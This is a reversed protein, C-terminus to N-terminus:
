RNRSRVVSCVPADIDDGTGVLVHNGVVVPAPTSFYGQSLDAIGKHWREKGTQADLAVLYDDPTEMFLTQHWMGPRPQRHTHRRRRGSTTGCDSGDRADVAVRQGAHHLLAGMSRWRPPKSPGAALMSTARGEGGVIIPPRGFGRSGQRNGPTVQTMWALTLHKVTSQNIQDLASYRKGTYDGSYTPWSDKLPKRLDAPDV